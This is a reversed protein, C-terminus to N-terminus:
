SVFHALGDPGASLEAARTPGKPRRQNDFLLQVVPHHGRKAATALATEGLRNPTDPNAGHELLLQVVPKHGEVAALFLSTNGDNDLIHPHANHDLLLQVIPEYGGSSAFFLATEGSRNLRNPDAGRKLLLYVVSEYERRAAFSLATHKSADRLHPSAKNDLLRQTISKQKAINEGFGTQLRPDVGNDLPMEFISIHGGGAAIHLATNGSKDPLTPDVGHDILLHVVPEHGANAAILLATHLTTKQVNAALLFRVSETLGYHAATFLPTRHIDYTPYGHAQYCSLKRAAWELYAKSPRALSNFFQKQLLSIKSDESQQGSIRIHHGWHEAYYSEVQNDTKIWTGTPGTTQNPLCLVWLCTEAAMAHADTIKFSTEELFEQVSRHAFRLVDLKSDWTVLNNCFRLITDKDLNPPQISGVSIAMILEAPSLHRRACMIWKLTKMTLLRSQEPYALITEFIRSYTEMLGKPLKGLEARVDSEFHFRENNCLNKIQLDVWMFRCIIPKLLSFCPSIM